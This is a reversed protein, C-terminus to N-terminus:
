RYPKRERKQNFESLFDIIESEFNIDLEIEYESAPTEISLAFRATSFILFKARLVKLSRVKVSIPLKPPINEPANGSIASGIRTADASPTPVFNFSANSVPMWLETPASRTLWQTLSM